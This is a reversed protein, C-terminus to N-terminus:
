FLYIFLHGMVQEKLDKVKSKEKELSAQLTQILQQMQQDEEEKRKLVAQVQLVDCFFFFAHKTYVWHFVLFAFLTFVFMM